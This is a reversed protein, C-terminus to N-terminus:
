IIYFAMEILKYARLLGKEAQVQSEIYNLIEKNM